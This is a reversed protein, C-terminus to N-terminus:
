LAAPFVLGAKPGTDESGDARQRLDGATPPVFADGVPLLVLECQAIHPHHIFLRLRQFLPLDVPEAVHRFLKEVLVPEAQFGRDEGLLAM